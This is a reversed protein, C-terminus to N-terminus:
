DKNECTLKYVTENRRRRENPSNVRLPYCLPTFSSVVCMPFVSWGGGVYAYSVGRRSDSERGKKWVDVTCNPWVRYEFLMPRSCGVTTTRGLWFRRSSRAFLALSVFFLTM